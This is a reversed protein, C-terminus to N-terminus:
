RITNPSPEVLTTPPLHDIDTPTETAFGTRTMVGWELHHGRVAQWLGQLRWWSHLQRYGVNEIIAAGVAVTLDSWREYRHYSLEEVLLASISLLIGYGFAAAFFLAAFSPDLLGFALGLLATTIGLLEIIPGLLEFLLYYPMVVVGIRGYRPNGIMTRHVWLVDALGRSWRRRQRALVAASEPVETWCVPESVFMIRYPRRQQRLARHMRAVLDADEGIAGARFGGLEVLIDRRFLGFAGSIILLGQLRSWGVRGLLFSRLYEVVQIRALWSTPMRSEVIRGRHMTSGNAARVTGGTAVVREPDDVFPKAVHLLAEEDIVADADTVCVLPHQAVNIGANAADGKSGASDKRVVVLARGDRPIWTGHVQGAVPVLPPVVLPLSVLGFSQELRAFTGDTSGDDVVIVEFRPYRLSLMAEVSEVILPEENHAPLILSVAPTLPNAFVDDFGAYARRRFYRILEVSAILILVLYITDLVLFYGLVFTDFAHLVSSVADTM